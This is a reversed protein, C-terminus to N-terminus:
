PRVETGAILLAWLAQYACSSVHTDQHHCMVDFLWEAVPRPCPKMLYHNMIWGGCLLEHLKTCSSTVLLKEFGNASPTGGVSVLKTM